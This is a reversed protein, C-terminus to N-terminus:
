RCRTAEPILEANVYSEASSAFGPAQVTEGGPSTASCMVTPTSDRCVGAAASDGALPVSPSSGGHGTRASADPRTEFCRWPSRLDVTVVHDPSGSGSGVAHSRDIFSRAVMRVASSGTLPSIVIATTVAALDPTRLASTGPASTARDDPGTASCVLHIARLDFSSTPLRLHGPNLTQTATPSATWSIMAKSDRGCARRRPCGHEKIRDGHAGHLPPKREVMTPTVASCHPLHAESAPALHPCAGRRDPSREALMRQLTTCASSERRAGTSLQALSDCRLSVRM